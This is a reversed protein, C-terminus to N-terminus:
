AGNMSRAPLMELRLNRWSGEIVKESAGSQEARKMASIIQLGEVLEHVYEYTPAERRKVAHYFKDWQYGGSRTSIAKRVTVQRKSKGRAVLIMEIPKDATAFTDPAVSRYITGREFNLTLSNRYYQMDDICFSAFVNALAGNKFLMGLQANDPTPRGSFIRSQTVQVEDAPGFLRVLDNILYIGLRFIPAVPCRQPDDYWTGDKKEQYSAWIDARAAIPRGLNYRERWQNILAFDESPGPAPSNLHIVRKLHVAERLVAEAEDADTEFPKTTMVDKGAEFIRRILSARGNPGTFLGIVPIDPDALLDELRTYAKVALRKSMAKLKPEDMDCVADIRFYGGYVPDLLNDIVYKGFNLGVIGIPIPKRM